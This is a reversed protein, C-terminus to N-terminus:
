KAREGAIHPHFLRSLKSTKKGQALERYVLTWTAYEFTAVLAIFFILLIIIFLIYLLVLGFALLSFNQFVSFLGFLSLPLAIVTLMLLFVISALTEIVFLLLATEISILWNKQFLIWATTLAPRLHVNHLVTAISAYKIIFGVIISVPLLIFFSLPTLATRANENLTKVEFFFPLFVLMVLLFLIGKELINLGFILWAHKRGAFLARQFNYKKASSTKNAANRADSLTAVSFILSGQAAAIVWLIFVILIPIAVAIVWRFPGFAQFMSEFNKLLLLFNQQFAIDKICFFWSTSIGSVDKLIPEIQSTASTMLGTFFGFFWLAPHRTTITWAERLIKKYQMNTTQSKAFLM